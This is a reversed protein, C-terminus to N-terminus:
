FYVRVFPMLADSYVSKDEDFLLNYRIGLTVNETRYGAGVFLGTSWFDRKFDEPTAEFTSNVRVQEVELSLQIEQIPNFLGIANAGYIINSFNNKVKIYSGQLGVGLAVYQNFNYIASPAVTVDTFGNGIALGLGGGFQVKDWFLSPSKTTPVVQSFGCYNTFLFVATLFVKKLITAVSTKTSM